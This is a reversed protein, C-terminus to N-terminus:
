GLWRRQRDGKKPGKKDTKVEPKAAPKAAPAEAQAPQAPQAVAETEAPKAAEAAVAGAEAPKAEVEAVQKHRQEREQKAHAEAAQRAFLEAQKRAEEERKALESDQMGAPAAPVAPAVAAPAEAVAEGEERKVFVRKKRVEVQITRAKGSSDAKRIETTEKRTLTIKPKVADKAGHSRRLFDLLKEKDQESVTDAANQKAVGAEKLQELLLSVPLNLETAFQEVNM